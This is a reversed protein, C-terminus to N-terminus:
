ARPVHSRGRASRRRDTLFLRRALPEAWTRVDGDLAGYEDLFGDEAPRVDHLLEQPVLEPYLLRAHHLAYYVSDTADYDRARSVVGHWEESSLRAAALAVDLFKLIQLDGGSEIYYLTTAEKYFHACLDIFQDEPSLAFADEGCLRVPIRRELLEEAPVDKTHRRQFINLCLDISYVEILLTDALKVFPLENNVNLQWFVQTGRDFSEIGGGDVSVRGQTYGHHRLLRHMADADAPAVLIDLDYMRRLGPDGYLGEAILPGKRVAYRFRAAGLARFLAAYEHALIENRRRNGVYIGAYIGHYPILPIGDPSLYLRHVVIHRAVLPLVKHRGCQDIFFGWDLDDRYKTLLHRCASIQDGSLEVRCLALLLSLEPQEDILPSPTRM